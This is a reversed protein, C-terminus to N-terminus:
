NENDVWKTKAIEITREIDENWTDNIGSYGEKDIDSRSRGLRLIKDISKFSKKNKAIAEELADRIDKESYADDLWNSLSDMELPSLTRNLRKEYYANLRSLTEARDSSILNAKDKEMKAQFQKYLKKKLPELSTRLSGNVTEYALLDKTVLSALVADIERSKMSMKLALLDATILGNGLRTLHDVMLITALEAESLGMTKYADLLLHRFDILDTDYYAPSM